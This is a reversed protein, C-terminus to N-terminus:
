KTKIQLPYESNPYFKLETNNTNKLIITEAGNVLLPVNPVVGNANNYGSIRIFGGTINGIANAIQKAQSNTLSDFGVKIRSILNRLYRLQKQSFDSNKIESELGM